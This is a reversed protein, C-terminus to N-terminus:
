TSIYQLFLLWRFSVYKYIHVFRVEQHCLFSLWRFHFLTLKQIQPRLFFTPNHRKWLINAHSQCDRIKHSENNMSRNVCSQLFYSFDIWLLENCFSLCLPKWKLILLARNIYYIPVKWSTRVSTLLPVISNKLNLALLYSKPSEFSGSKMMMAWPAAFNHGILTPSRFFFDLVRSRVM